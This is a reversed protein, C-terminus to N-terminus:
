KKSKLKRWEGEVIRKVHNVSQEKDGQVDQPLYPKAIRVEDMVVITDEEWHCPLTKALADFIYQAETTVGAGLKEM